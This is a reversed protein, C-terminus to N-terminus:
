TEQPSLGEFLLDVIIDPLDGWHSALLEDGLIRLIMLGIFLAQVSRVALPVNVARIDGLGMRAHVYQELLTALPEAFERYFRDRLDPKVLMEPLVALLTQYNQDILAMRHQAIVLLFDRVDEDLAEKLEVSMTEVKSLRMVIGLLLDDKSDFYNYITGEAVSAESAIDRTTAHHFGKQAFVKSAADLIQSRRAEVLLRKIPDQTRPV